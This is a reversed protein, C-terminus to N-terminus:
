SPALRASEVRDLRLRRPEDLALDICDLLTVQREVVVRELRVTREKCAGDGSRYRLIMGKRELWAREIVTAVDPRPPLTPVGVFALMKVREQLERRASMPLVGEVKELSEQLTKLFPLARMEHAWRGVALLVAAQRATFTVPPLTYSRDLAYGGGRGREASLPLEAIRLSRLDRYITRVDVDFREALQEATVGVRRARLYEALAFLREQRRM